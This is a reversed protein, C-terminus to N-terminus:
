SQISPWESPISPLLLLSSHTRSSRYSAHSVSGRSLRHGTVKGTDEEAISGDGTSRLSLVMEEFAVKMMQPSDQGVIDNIDYHSVMRRVGQKDAESITNNHMLVRLQLTAHIPDPVM